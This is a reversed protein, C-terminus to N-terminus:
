ENQFEAANSLGWMVEEFDTTGLRDFAQWAEESVGSFDARNLLADYAFIDGKCAQSFGNGLLVHPQKNNDRAIGIAEHFDLLTITM